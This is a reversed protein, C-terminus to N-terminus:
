LNLVTQDCKLPFISFRGIRYRRSSLSRLLCSTMSRRHVIQRRFLHSIALQALAAREVLEELCLAKVQQSQLDQHDESDEFNAM